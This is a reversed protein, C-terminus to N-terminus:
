QSMQCLSNHCVNSRSVQCLHPFWRDIEVMPIHLYLYNSCRIHTYRYRYPRTVRETHMYMVYPKLCHLIKRLVGPIHLCMYLKVNM